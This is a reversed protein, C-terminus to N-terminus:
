AGEPLPAFHPLQMGEDGFPEFRVEVRMGVHAADAPADVLNGVVHVGPQEDIEVVLCAYPVLDEFGVVRAQRMVTFHSVRGRGSVPTAEFESCHCEPCLPVPPHHFRACASCRQLVLRGQGAGEWFPASLSTLEPQPRQVGLPRRLETM